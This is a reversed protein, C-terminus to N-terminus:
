LDELTVPKFNQLYEIAAKLLEVNDLFSGIGQNCKTCLLGRVEMTTHCHDVALSRFNGSEDKVTEGLKCIACVNNQKVLLQKYYAISIGYNKQLDLEKAKEPNNQRWSKAYERKVAKGEETDLYERSFKKKWAFNTPSFPLLKDLKVLVHGSEYSSEADKVFNWFEKWEQCVVYHRKIRCWTGYLPHKERSGRGIVKDAITGSREARLRHKNCMGNSHVKSECGVIYCIKM